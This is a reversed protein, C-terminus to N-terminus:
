SVLAALSWRSFRHTLIFSFDVYFFTGQLYCPDKRDHTGRRYPKPAELNRGTKRFVVTPVRIPPNVRARAIFWIM